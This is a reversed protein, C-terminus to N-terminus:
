GGPDLRMSRVAAHAVAVGPVAGVGLQVLKVELRWDGPPPAYILAPVALSEGPKLDRALPVQTAPPVAAADGGPGAPKFRLELLLPGRASADLGVWATEGENRLAVVVPSPLGAVLKQPARLMLSGRTGAPALAALTLGQLSLPGRNEPLARLEAAFAEALSGCKRNVRYVRVMGRRTELLLPLSQVALSWRRLEDPSLNTEDVLIWRLSTLACIDTFAQADEPLRAVLARVLTSGAPPHRTYGQVLPLWHLTSGTMSHTVGLLRPSDLASRPQPVLLVPGTAGTDRLWRHVAFTDDSEPVVELLRLGGEPLRLTTLLVAWLLCILGAVRGALAWGGGSDGARRLAEGLLGAGLVAAAFVTLILFPEPGGIGAFGPLVWTAIEFLSPWNTGPVLPVGPGLALGFGIVGAVLLAIRPARLSRKGAFPACLAFALLPWGLATVLAAVIEAPAEGTRRLLELTASSGAEDLAFDRARARGYVRAVPLVAAAGLGLALLAPFAGKLGAWRSRQEDAGSSRAVLVLAPALCALLTFLQYAVYIGALSQLATAAALAVLRLARPERAARWALLVIFPFLSVASWHLRVFDGASERSLAFAVAALLAASFSGSWVRVLAFTGLASLWVVLLVTMGYTFIADRTAWWLPAALPVLGLLNESGALVDPAPHFVNAQFLTAPAQVIARATWSLIWVLLDLDVRRWAAFVDHRSAPDPLATGLRAALPWSAWAVAVALLFAAALMEIAPVRDTSRRDM